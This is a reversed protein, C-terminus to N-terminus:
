LIINFAFVSYCFDCTISLLLFFPPHQQTGNYQSSKVHIKIIRINLTNFNTTLGDTILRKGNVDEESKPIELSECKCQVNYQVM